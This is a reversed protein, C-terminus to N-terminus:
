SVRESGACGTHKGMVWTESTTLQAIDLKAGTIVIEIKSIVRNGAALLTCPVYYTTLLYQNCLHINLKNKINIRDPEKDQDCFWHQRPLTNTLAGSVCIYCCLLPRMRAKDWMRLNPKETRYRGRLSKETQDILKVDEDRKVLVWRVVGRALIAERSKYM